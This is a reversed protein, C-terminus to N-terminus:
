NSSVRASCMNEVMIKALVTYRLRTKQTTNQKDQQGAEKRWQPTQGEIYGTPIKLSKSCMQRLNEM